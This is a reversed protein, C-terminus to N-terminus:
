IALWAMAEARAVTRAYADSLVFRNFSDKAMNSYVADEALELVRWDCPGTKYRVTTKERVKAPINVECPAGPSIYKKFIQTLAAQREEESFPTNVRYDTCAKWFALNEESFETALYDAFLQYGSSTSLIDGLTNGWRLPEIEELNVLVKQADQFAKEVQQHM